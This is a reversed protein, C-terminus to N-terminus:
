GIILIRASSAGEDDHDSEAESIQLSEPLRVSQDGAFFKAIRQDIDLATEERGDSFTRNPLKEAWKRGEHITDWMPRMGEKRGKGPNHNGFGEVVVNWLPDTLNILISEGLPIWVPEVILYRCHFDAIDLTAYAARISGAHQSLQDALKSGIARLDRKGKRAGAPEAKGVYIPRSFPTNQHISALAHKLSASKSTVTPLAAKLRNHQAGM